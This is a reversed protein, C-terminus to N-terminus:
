TLIYAYGTWTVNVAKVRTQKGLYLFLVVYASSGHRM